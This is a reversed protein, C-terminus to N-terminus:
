PPNETSTCPSLATLIRQLLQQAVIPNLEYQGILAQFLERFKRDEM